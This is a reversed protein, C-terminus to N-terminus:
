CPPPCEIALTQNYVDLHTYSVAGAGAVAQDEESRWYSGASTISGGGSLASRRSMLDFAQSELKEFDPLKTAGDADVMLLLEGRACQMGKRVAAGKGRNRQRIVRFVDISYKKVYSFGVASTGDRSGDDVLIIEYTFSRERAARKRLYSMTEDLFNPLRDEENFAPIIISLYKTAPEFMSPLPVKALSNCDELYGETALRRADDLQSLWEFAYSSLWVVSLTLGVMIGVTM